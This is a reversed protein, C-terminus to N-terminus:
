VHFELYDFYPVVSGIVDKELKPTQYEDLVYNESLFINLYTALTRKNSIIKTAVQAETSTRSKEIKGEAFYDKLSLQNDSLACSDRVNNPIVVLIKAGPKLKSRLAALFTAIDDIHDLVLALIAIDYKQDTHTIFESIDSKVLKTNDPVGRERFTELMNDSFDVATVNEARRSFMRAYTGIGCGLDLVAKYSLSESKSRFLPDVIRHNLSNSEREVAYIKSIDAFNKDHDQSSHVLIETRYTDPCVILRAAGLVSQGEVLYRIAENACYASVLMNLPGFSPAQYYEQPISKRGVENLQRLSKAYDGVKDPEFFPGIAGVRDIYGAALIPCDISSIITNLTDFNDLSDASLIIIDCGSFHKRFSAAHEESLPLQLSSINVYPDIKILESALANVKPWGLHDCNYKISRTLNSEEVADGDSIRISKVGAAVLLTAVNSGIGGVGIVGVTAQQLTAQVAIPDLGKLSYYLRHRDYRDEPWDSVLINHHLLNELNKVQDSFKEHLDALSRETTCFRLMESLDGRVDDIELSDHFHPLTTLLRGNERYFHM